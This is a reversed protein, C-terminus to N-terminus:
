GGHARLANRLQLEFPEPHLYVQARLYVEGYRDIYDNLRGAPVEWPVAGDAYAALVACWEAKQTAGLERKFYGGIHQLTNVHKKVTAPRRVAEALLAGYAQLVAPWRREQMEAVVRGLARYHVISHAMLLYKHRAHFVVLAARDPTKAVFARWRHLTYVQEAFCARGAADALAEAETVPILPFQTTFTRAFLGTGQRLPRAEATPFLKVRAMGCSPSRSKFIFGDLSSTALETTRRDCWAQMRETLDIRTQETMLRPRAPDGELQIRERPVPMGFETEPCVPVWVFGRALEDAVATDRMLIGDYRVRAGLLCASVGIRMVNM